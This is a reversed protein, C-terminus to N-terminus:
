VEADLWLGGVFPCFGRVAIPKGGFSDGGLPAGLKEQCEAEKQLM